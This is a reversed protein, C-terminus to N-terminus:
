IRTLYAALVDYPVVWARGGGGLAALVLGVLEGSANVVPAGSDGELVLGACMAMRRLGLKPADAYTNTVAPGWLLPIMLPEQGAGCGYLWVTEGEAPARGALRLPTRTAPDSLWALDLLDDHGQWDASLHQDLAGPREVRVNGGSIVHWATLLRGPAACFATGIRPTSVRVTAAKLLRVREPGSLEPALADIRGGLRRWIRIAVVALEIRKVADQPRFKGDPDGQMLGAAQVEDAAAREWAPRSVMDAFSMRLVGGM